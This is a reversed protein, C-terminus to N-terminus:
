KKQLVPEIAEGKYELTCSGSRCVAANFGRQPCAGAVACRAIEQETCKARDLFQEAFKRNVADARGDKLDGPEDRCFSCACKLLIKQCDGDAKCARHKAEVDKALADAAHFWVLFAAFSCLFFRM